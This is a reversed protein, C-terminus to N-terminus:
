ETKCRVQLAPGEVAGLTEFILIEGTFVREGSQNIYTDGTPVYVLRTSFLYDAIITLKMMFWGSTLQGLRSLHDMQGLGSFDITAYGFLWDDRGFSNYANQFDSLNM